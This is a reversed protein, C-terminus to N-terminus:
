RIVGAERLTQQLSEVRRRNVGLDWTGSRSASRVDLRSDEGSRKLELDDIFGFLRSKFEIRMYHDTFAALRTRPFSSISERLKQWAADPSGALQMSDVRQADNSALSSVCNPSDPCPALEHNTRTESNAPMSLITASFVLAILRGPVQASDGRPSYSPSPSPSDTM